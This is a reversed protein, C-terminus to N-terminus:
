ERQCVRPRFRGFCLKKVIFLTLTTSTTYRANDANVTGVDDGSADAIADDSFYGITLWHEKDSNYSHHM